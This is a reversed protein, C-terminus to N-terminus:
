DDDDDDDDEKKVRPKSKNLERMKDAIDRSNQRSQDNESHPSALSETKAVRNTAPIEVKTHPDSISNSPVVTVKSADRVIIRRGADSKPTYRFTPKAKAVGEPASKATYRAVWKGILM